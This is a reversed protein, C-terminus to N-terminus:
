IKEKIIIYPLKLKRIEKNIFELIENKVKVKIKISMNNESYKDHKGKEGSNKKKRGLIKNIEKAQINKFEKQETNNYFQQFPNDNFSNFMEINNPEM